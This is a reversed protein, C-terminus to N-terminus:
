IGVAHRHVREREVKAIIEMQEINLENAQLHKGGTVELYEKRRVNKFIDYFGDSPLGTEKKAM